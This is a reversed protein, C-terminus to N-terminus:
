GTRRPRVLILMAAAVELAICFMLASAYSGTADRMIGLLGPGFAYTFQSIAWSLGVLMGFAAAEFERQIVLAPLTLLNGASLGFLLCAGFVATTDSTLLLVLLAAAQSLLSGATFRRMDLRTAIAGLGFRGAIAAVTLIAVSFGVQSRGLVPELMAIQHVLFGVQATLAMAFPAAVSWFATSRLARRRTWASAATATSATGPSVERASRPREVWLAVVPFLVV